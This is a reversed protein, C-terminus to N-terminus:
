TWVRADVVTAAREAEAAARRQKEAVPKPPMVSRMTAGGWNYHKGKLM